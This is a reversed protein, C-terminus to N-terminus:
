LYLCHLWGGAQLQRDAAPLLDGVIRSVVYLKHTVPLQLGCPSLQLSREATREPQLHQSLPTCHQQLRPPELWLM